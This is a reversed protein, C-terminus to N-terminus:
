PECDVPPGPDILNWLREDALATGTPLRTGGPLTAPGNHAMPGFDHFLLKLGLKLLGRALRDIPPPLGLHFM